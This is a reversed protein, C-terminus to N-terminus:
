KPRISGRASISIKIIAGFPGPWRDAGLVFAARTHRRKQRNMGVRGAVTVIDAEAITRRDTTDPGANNLGGEALFAFRIQEAFLGHKAAAERTQHLSAEIGQDLGTVGRLHCIEFAHVFYLQDDVQDLLRCQPYASNLRSCPLIRRGTSPRGTISSRTLCFM